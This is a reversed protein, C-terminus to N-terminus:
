GEREREGKSRRRRRIIGEQPWERVVGVDDGDDDRLDPPM